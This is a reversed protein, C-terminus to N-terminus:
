MKEKSYLNTRTRRCFVPKCVKKYQSDIRDDYIPLTSSVESFNRLLAEINGSSIYYISDGLISYVTCDAKNKEEFIGRLPVSTILLRFCQLCDRLYAARKNSLIVNEASMKSFYERIESISAFDQM